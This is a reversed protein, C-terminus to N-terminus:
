QQHLHNEVEVAATGTRKLTSRQPTLSIQTIQPQSQTIVQRNPHPPLSIRETQRIDVDM